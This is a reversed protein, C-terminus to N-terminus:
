VVLIIQRALLLLAHQRGKSCTYFIFPSPTRNIIYLKNVTSLPSPPFFLMQQLSALYGSVSLVTYYIIIIIRYGMDHVMIYQLSVSVSLAIGMNSTPRRTRSRSVMTDHINGTNM